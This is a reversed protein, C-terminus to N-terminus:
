VVLFMGQHRGFDLMQNTNERYTSSRLCYLLSATELRWHQQYKRAEPLMVEAVSVTLPYICLVM